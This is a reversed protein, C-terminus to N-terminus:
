SETLVPSPTISAGQGQPVDQYNLAVASPLKPTEKRQKKNSANIMAAGGGAAVIGALVKWADAASTGARSFINPEPQASHFDHMLAAGGALGAGGLAYGAVGPSRLAKGALAGTRPGVKKLMDLVGAEKNFQTAFAECFADVNPTNEEAEKQSSVSKLTQMYKANTDAIEKNTQKSKVKDYVAKTAMYGLPAGAAAAAIGSLFEGAGKLFDEPLESAMKPQGPQNPIDLVLANPPLQQREHLKKMEQQRKVENILQGLAFTGGGVAASDALIGPWNAKKTSM